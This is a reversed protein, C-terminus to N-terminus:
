PVNYIYIYFAPKESHLDCVGGGFVQVPKSIVGKFNLGTMLKM